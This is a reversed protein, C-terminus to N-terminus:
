GDVAQTSSRTRFALPTTGVRQQFYKSFNSADDFGLDAAIRAVPNRSHVLLRKAELIIREDILQKASLGTNERALRNLTRPSYGLRAAYDAVQHRSAFGTELEERFWVFAERTPPRHRADAPSALMLLLLAATLLRARAEARIEKGSPDNSAEDVAFLAGLASGAPHGDLTAAPWHGPTRVEAARIWDRADSDVVAPTFMAVPGEIDAIAGWQHVQGARIWVVDGRALSYDAFDIRHRTRGTEIRMLLDFDLRQPTLFEQPGGRERIGALSNIEIRGVVGAPPSYRVPRIAPDVIHGM